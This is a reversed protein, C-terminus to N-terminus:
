LCSSFLGELDGDGWFFLGGVGVGTTLGCGVGEGVGPGGGITLGGM